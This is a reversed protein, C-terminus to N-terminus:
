ASLSLVRLISERLNEKFSSTTPAPHEMQLRHAVAYVTAVVMYFFLKGVDLGREEFVETVVSQVATFLAPDLSPTEEHPM